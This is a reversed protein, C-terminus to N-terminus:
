GVFGFIKNRGKDGFLGFHFIIDAYIYIYIYTQMPVCLRLPM